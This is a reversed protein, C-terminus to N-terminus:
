YSQLKELYYWTYMTRMKPMKNQLFAGTIDVTALDRKEHADIAFTIILGALSATPSATDLKNTYLIQSRGDACGRGKVDGNRKEKLYILYKLAKAKEDANLEHWHKPQFGEMDHIQQLEKTVVTAGKEKFLKLGKRWNMQETLFIYEAEYEDILDEEIDTKDNIHLFIMEEEDNMPTEKGDHIFKYNIISVDRLKMNIYRRKEDNDNDMGPIEVGPIKIPHNNVNQTNNDM